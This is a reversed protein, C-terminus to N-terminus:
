TYGRHYSPRDPALGTAAPTETGSRGSEYADRTRIQSKARAESSRSITRICAEELSLPFGWGSGGRRELVMARDHHVEARATATPGSVIEYGGASLFNEM